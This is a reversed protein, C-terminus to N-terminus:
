FGAWYIQQQSQNSLNEQVVLYIWLGILFFIGGLSTLFLPDSFM